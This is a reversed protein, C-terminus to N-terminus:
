HCSENWRRRAILPHVYDSLGPNRKWGELHKAIDKAEQPLDIIDDISQQHSHNINLDVGAERMCKNAADGSLGYARAIKAISTMLTNDVILDSGLLNERKYALDREKHSLGLTLGLELAWRRVVQDKINLLSGIESVSLGWLDSDVELRARMAKHHAIKGKM